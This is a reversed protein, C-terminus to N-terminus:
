SSPVGLVRRYNCSALQNLVIHPPMKTSPSPSTPFASETLALLGHLAVGVFNVPEHTVLFAMPVTDPLSLVMNCVKFWAEM